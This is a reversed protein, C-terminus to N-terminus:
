LYLTIIHTKGSQRPLAKPIEASERQLLNMLGTQVNMETWEGHM